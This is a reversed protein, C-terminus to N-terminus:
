VLVQRGLSGMSERVMGEAQVVGTRGTWQSFGSVRKVGSGVSLHGRLGEPQKILMRLEDKGLWKESNM